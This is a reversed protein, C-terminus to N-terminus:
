SGGCLWNGLQIVFVIVKLYKERKRKMSMYLEEPLSYCCGAVGVVVVNSYLLFITLVHNWTSSIVHGGSCCAAAVTSDDCWPKRAVSVSVSAAPWNNYRFKFENQLIRLVFVESEYNNKKRMKEVSKSEGAEHHKGDNDSAKRWLKMRYEPGAAIRSLFAGFLPFWDTNAINELTCVFRRNNANVM